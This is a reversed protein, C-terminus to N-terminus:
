KLGGKTRDIQILWPIVTRAVEQNAITSHDRGNAGTFTQSNTVFQNFSGEGKASPLTVLTDNGLPSPNNVGVLTAVLYCRPPTETIDCEVRYSVNISRVTRLNQYMNNIVGTALSESLNRLRRLKDDEIVLGRYEDPSSDIRGNSNLDADAGITNFTINRDLLSLNGQNFNSVAGTTLHPHGDNRLFNDAIAAMAQTYAPFGEFKLRGLIGVNDAANGREMMLDALITGNHPTGLTTLSLVKFDEDHTYQHKALYERADLGGKSHAILHVNKAGWQRVIAPILANLRGGNAETSDAPINISNDYVIKKTKLEGMTQTTADIIGAFGQRDFFAGESANGHILIVPSMARFTQAGWDISTCWVENSNATDIDIRIENVGGTPAGGNTGKSAFKIKEIPIKFSNLVWQNNQGRLFGVEFGNVSVKDLEPQTGQPAGGSDVDFAPIILEVESSILGNRVLEQVHELTEDGKLSGLYRKVEINFIIPGSSRFICGTDLKPAKDTSFSRDTNEPPAFPSTRVNSPRYRTEPSPTDQAFNLQCGVLFVVLLIWTINNFRKM